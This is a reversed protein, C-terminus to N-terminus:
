SIILNVKKWNNGYQLCGKIFRYHEDPHWRGSKYEENMESLENESLFDESFGKLRESQLINPNKLKIIGSNKGDVQDLNKSM